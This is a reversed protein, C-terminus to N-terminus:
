SSCFFILDKCEEFSYLVKFNFKIADIILDKNSSRRLFTLIFFDKGVKKIESLGKEVDKFNQIATISVVVDFEGESFPIKEASAVIYVGDSDKEKAKEVLKNAPDIGTRECNKWFRTTLGSGCGVDLLKGQLEIKLEELKGRIFDLKDIQEKGHLEEYGESIDDYYTDMFGLLVIINKFCEAKM